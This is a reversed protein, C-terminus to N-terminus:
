AYKGAVGLGAGVTTNLGRSEGEVTPQLAAMGGGILGAGIYTNAGPVFALPAAGAFQGVKGGWTGQLPADLARKDDAEQQLAQYRTQGTVLSNMSPRSLADAGQAYMQRAGLGVDTYLKGAGELANQWFGRTPAYAAQAEPSGTPVQQGNVLDYSHG